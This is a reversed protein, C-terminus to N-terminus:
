GLWRTEVWECAATLDLEEGLSVLDDVRKWEDMEPLVGESYIPEIRHFDQQLLAKCMYTPVSGVGNMFVDVIRTGWQMAGWDANEKSITRRPTGTGISLVRLEKRNVRRGVVDPDLMMATAAAAPNNAIVGGDVYNNYASFYTPAASTALAVDRVLVECDSDDSDWNDFFKPRWMNKKSDDLMFTPVLVKSKLDGLTRERFIDELLKKLGKNSYKSRTIGFPAWWKRKFIKDGQSEYLKRLVSVTLNDALGLAIIGGTSTGAFLDVNELMKPYRSLLRDLAVLSLLGCIGGGDFSLIRTM